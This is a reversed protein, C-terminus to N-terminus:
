KWEVMKVGPVSAFKRVVDEGSVTGKHRVSFEVETMPPPTQVKITQNMIKMQFEDLIQLLPAMEKEGDRNILISNYTDKPILREVVRLFYLVLISIATSAAGLYYFGCGIALGIAAVVWLCAATTIGRTRKKDRVIAGAGLFGIGTITGYAIRAPDLRLVSDASFGAFLEPIRLSTIMILCTGGCVLILTRFGAERGHSERELGVVGGLVAAILLRLVWEWESVIM